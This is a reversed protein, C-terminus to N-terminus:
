QDLEISMLDEIFSNYDLKSKIKKIAQIVTDRIIKTKEYSDAQLYEEYDMRISISACAGYGIFRKHEKWLGQEYLEKPAAVPMIGITSLTDSYEKTKFFDHLKQCYRYVEDDVGYIDKFYAPTNMNFEMDEREM